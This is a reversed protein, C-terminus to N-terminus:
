LDLEKRIAAAAAEATEAAVTHEAWARYLPIRQAALTEIGRSQSLPRGEATLATLPRDLYIIKGNQRMIARNKPMTVVGGGTAIVCGIHKCLEKLVATEKERFAPEGNQSLYAGPAQGFTQEFVADCDYFPRGLQEALLAGVTSKGCSPMGILLISRMQAALSRYAQETLDDALKKNQFLESARKAQAALMYLGNVARIGLEEAQLLLATKMPNYILDIVTSCTEFISLDFLVGGNEPFMGVPTANVILDADKHRLLNVYNDYGSRSIVVVNAGRRKLVYQVAKSAGGSGLVLAKKGGVFIKERDLLAAFGFVDTNEAYINGNEFLLTNASGVEQVTDSLTSCFALVTEKYPITVNLGRLGGSHLLDSLEHEAREFLCYEYNGFLSHLKPSLSHGLAKGLLGCRM